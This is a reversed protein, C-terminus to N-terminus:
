NKRNNKQCPQVLFNINNTEPDSLFTRRVEVKKPKTYLERLLGYISGSTRVSIERPVELGGQVVIIKETVKITVSCRM